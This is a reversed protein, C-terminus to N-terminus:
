DVHLLRSLRNSSPFSHSVNLNFYEFLPGLSQELDAESLAIKAKKKDKLPKTLGQLTGVNLTSRVFEAMRDVIERHMDGASRDLARSALSLHYAIDHKEGGEM